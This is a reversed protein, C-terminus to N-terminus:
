HELFAQFVLPGGSLALVNARLKNNAAGLRAAALQYARLTAATEVTQPGGVHFVAIQRADSFATTGGVPPNGTGAVTPVATDEIAVLATQGAPLAEAAFRLTWDGEIASTDLTGDAPGTANITQRTPTTIPSLM